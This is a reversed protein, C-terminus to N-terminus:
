KQGGYRQERLEADEKFWFNWGDHYLQKPTKNYKEIGMQTLITVIVQHRHLEKELDKPVAEGESLLEEVESTLGNLEDVNEIYYQAFKSYIMEEPIVSM